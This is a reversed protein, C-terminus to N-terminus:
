KKKGKKKKPAPMGSMMRNYAKQAIRIKDGKQFGKTIQRDNKLRKLIENSRNFNEIAKIRKLNLNNSIKDKETILQDEFDLMAIYVMADHSSDAHGGKTFNQAYRSLKGITWDFLHYRRFDDATKLTLGNPFLASLVNGVIVFNDGYIKNREDYTKAAARLRRSANEKIKRQYM